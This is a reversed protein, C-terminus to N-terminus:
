VWIAQLIVDFTLTSGSTRQLTASGDAAIALTLIDTGDSYLIWSDNNKVYIPGGDTNGDSAVVVVMAALIATVDGTGNAIITVADGAVDNAAMLKSYGVTVGGIIAPIRGTPGGEDEDTHGHLPLNGAPGDDVVSWEVSELNATLDDSDATLEVTTNPDGYSSSLVVPYKYGDVAGCYCRVRRNATFNATKDGVVTFSDADVYTASIAM